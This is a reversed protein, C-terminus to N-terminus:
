YALGAKSLQYLAKPSGQAIHMLVPQSWSLVSIILIGKAQRIGLHWTYTSPSTPPSLCCLHPEPMDASDNVLFFSLTTHGLINRAAKAVLLLGVCPSWVVDQPLRSGPSQKIFLIQARSGDTACCSHSSFSTSPAASRPLPISFLSQFLFVFIM